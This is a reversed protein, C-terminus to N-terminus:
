GVKYEDEHVQGGYGASAWVAKKINEDSITRFFQFVKGNYREAIRAANPM